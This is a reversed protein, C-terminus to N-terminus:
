LIIDGPVIERTLIRQREGARVVTAEPAAIAMLARVSKEARAEQVIGLIANLAVIALIVIAEYPLATERPVQLLWEIISIVVAVLLIIILFNEFQALLRRWWPTEPASKLANPGYHALRRQAEARSLGQVADTGVEAVVADATRAQPAVPLRPANDNASSAAQEPTGFRAPNAELDMM